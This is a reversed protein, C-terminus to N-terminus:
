CLRSRRERISCECGLDYEFMIAIKRNSCEGLSANKRRKWAWVDGLTVDADKKVPVELQSFLVDWPDDPNPPTPKKRSGAPTVRLVPDREHRAYALSWHRWEERDEYAPEEPIKYSRHKKIEGKRPGNPSYLEVHTVVQAQHLHDGSWGFILLMFRYLHAFTFSLPVRAIRYVGKFRCLQFRLQIITDSPPPLALHTARSSVAPNTAHPDFGFDDFDDVRSRKASVPEEEAVAGDVDEITRKSPAQVEATEPDSEDEGESSEEEETDDLRQEMELLYALDSTTIHATHLGSLRITNSM